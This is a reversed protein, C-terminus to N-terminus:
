KNRNILDHLKATMDYFSSRRLQNEQIGIVHGLRFGNENPFMKTDAKFNITGMYEGAIGVSGIINETSLLFMVCSGDIAKCMNKFIGTLGKSEEPIEYFVDIVKLPLESISEKTESINLNMFRRLSDHDAYKRFTDKYIFYGSALLVKAVFQLRLNLDIKIMSNFTLGNSEEKTLIRKDIPDFFHSQKGEFVLQIPRNTLTLKSKKLVTKPIEGSHGRLDKRRRIGSVLFDNSMKGDIQYGLISNKNVDVRIVFENCGGLSLPIIHELNSGNFEIMENIYICYTDKM